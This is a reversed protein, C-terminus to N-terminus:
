VDFRPSARPRRVPVSFARGGGAGLAVALEDANPRDAFGEFGRDGSGDAAGRRFSDGSVTAQFRRRFSDVASGRSVASQEYNDGITEPPITLGEFAMGGPTKMKM